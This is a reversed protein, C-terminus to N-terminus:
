LASVRNCCNCRLPQPRGWRLTANGTVPKRAPILGTKKKGLHIVTGPM